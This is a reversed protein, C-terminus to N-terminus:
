FHDNRIENMRLVSVKLPKQALKRVMENAQEEGTGGVIGLWLARLESSGSLYVRPLSPHARTNFAHIAM